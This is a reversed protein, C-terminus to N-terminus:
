LNLNLTFFITREPIFRPDTTNPTLYSNDQFRFKEDFINNINLSFIGQRKALRYGIGADILTFSESDAAISQQLSEPLDINQHVYTAGIQAFFGSPDFYKVSVPVSNTIVDRPIDQARLKGHESKFREFLYDATVAWTPSPLWYVYVHGLNEQYQEIEFFPTGIFAPPRQERKSVELGGFLTSNLKADLGIGYRKSETGNTDDFFQNFGAVQTPEITQNVLLDHKIFKLFAARLLLADNIHWQLGIKPNLKNVEFDQQQYSDYSLGLTINFDKLPNLNLYSYIIHQDTEFESSHISNLYHNINTKYLGVGSTINYHDSQYVIQAEGQYANDAGLQTIKSNLFFDNQQEQESYILSAVAHLQNSHHYHTGLRFVEQQTQTRNKSSFSNNFNFQFDGSVTNRYRYEAQLNLQPTAALQIFANYIDHQLDANKRFGNTQYHFQGLSYAMPEAVGSFVLEEALTDNSGGLGSILLKTQNREFLSTYENLTANAFNASLNLNAESLSPQVSNLSLPQTLQAQLLESVRAIEHRPQSLYSDALFRHASNNTPDLNLSLSAQNNALQKFGLDNYIQALRTSRAALDEDLLFTSRYIGRNANLDISKQLEQVAEIPRNICQLHIADYFYPTPDRSDLAKAQALYKQALREDKIEFYAKGLYSNYLSVKPELLTAKQIASVADETRNQRFLALGLGLHPEGLTSDQTIADQFAQQAAETHGQALQLFGWTSNVLADDPTRQRAREAAQLAPKIEGMGFLLRSEQILAQPSDPDLAVAQRASALAGDLDFEAQQTWSLTLYAVSSAPDAAVAREANVRAEMKRNQVLDIIARLSYARADHSDFTLVRNLAQQAQPVEGRLLHDHAAALWRESSGSATGDRGQLTRDLPPTPYYLSWQAADLPEVLIMKRPAEGKKATAQEHAAVLVRGYPNHFEVTGELVALRSVGSSEVALNFETGRITATASITEVELNQTGRVWIEGGLLRFTKQLFHETSTPTKKDTPPKLELQSNANLKLQSGNSLQIAMRSGEGTKILEGVAIAEGVQLPQWCGERLIEARGLISVVEGAEEAFAIPASLLLVALLLFIWTKLALYRHRTSDKIM